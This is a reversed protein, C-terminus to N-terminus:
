EGRGELDHLHNILRFLRAVYTGTDYAVIDWPPNNMFHVEDLLVDEELWGSGDGLSGIIQRVEEADKSVTRYDTGRSRRALIPQVIGKKREAEFEARAAVPDIQRLREYEQRMGTVNLTMRHGYPYAQESDYTPVFTAVHNDITPKRAYIPRNTGAEYFYTYLGDPGIASADLWDLAAPIPDLYRTDGSAKYITFLDTINDATQGASVTALEFKRGRTPKMDRGYQQAWGAQPAPLQSIIYFDMGRRAAELYATRGLRDYAELLVMINNFIAGDNFTYAATYDSRLPYRQPWGGNPYQSELLFELADLLPTRYAPDQTTDYLRLLFLTASQSVEDDFTSNDPFKTHEEWGWRESFYEDYYEALGKVEFDIFYNWGGEPRQGWVLANAVTRAHELFVPDGTAKYAELFVMGVTPTGPPEVWIMTDRAKLEGYRLSGDPKTKWVFGGRYSLKEMMFDAATRMASVVEERNPSAPAVAPFPLLALLFLVAFAFSKM